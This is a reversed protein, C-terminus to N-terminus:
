IIKQIEQIKLSILYKEVEIGLFYSYQKTKKFKKLFKKKKFNLVNLYYIIKKSNEDFKEIKKILKRILSRM